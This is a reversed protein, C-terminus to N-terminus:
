NIRIKDERATERRIDREKLELKKNIAKKHKAVGLEIKAYGRESLYVKLPVITLGKRSIAGVLRNIERQHLLLTRARRSTDEKNYAHKYPSIYCNTLVVAGQHITAFADNLSINKSRLSKIEDGKLVIGAQLTELIEYNHYARKNIAIIKM